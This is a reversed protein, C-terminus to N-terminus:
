RSRLFKNEINVTYLNRDMTEINVYVTCFNSDTRCDVILEVKQIRDEINKLALYNPIDYGITVLLKQRLQIKNELVDSFDLHKEKNSFAIKGEQVIRETIDIIFRHENLKDKCEIVELMRTFLGTANVIFPYDMGNEFIFPTNDRILSFSPRGNYTNETVLHLPNILETLRHIDKNELKTLKICCTSVYPRELERFAKKLVNILRPIYGVNSAFITTTDRKGITNPSDSTSLFCYNTDDHHNSSFYLERFFLTLDKSIYSKKYDAYNLELDLITSNFNNPDKHYQQKSANSGIASYIDAVNNCYSDAHAKVWIVNITIANLEFFDKYRKVIEWTDRHVISKNDQRRWDNSIWKDMNENFSSVIYNSDTYITVSQVHDVKSAKELAILFGLLETENNTSSPNNISKIVEVIKLIEIPTEEKTSHIGETTFYLNTHSPHKINKHRPSHKYYYGFVASGGHGPNLPTTSGDTYYVCHVYKSEDTM